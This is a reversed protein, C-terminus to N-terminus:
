GLSGLHDLNTALKEKRTKIAKLDDQNKRVVDDPARTMFDENKLRTEIKQIEVDLEELIERRLGQDLM